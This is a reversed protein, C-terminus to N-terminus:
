CSLFVSIYNYQVQSATKIHYFRFSAGKGAFGLLVLELNSGAKERDSFPDHIVNVVFIQNLIFNM